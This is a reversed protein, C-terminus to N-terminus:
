GKLSELPLLDALAPTACAREYMRRVEAVADEPTYPVPLSALWARLDDRMRGGTPYRQEPNHRLAQKLISVVAEPVGRAAREVAEPGLALLRTGLVDLPLWSPQEATFPTGTSSPPTVEDPDDLPHRGLLLELLVMGLAFLDLRSDYQGRCVYEPATYAMDGRLHHTTTLRRGELTSFMGDFGALKVEGRLSLRINELNIGRHIIHLPQGRDDTLQHAHDLADAVAAGIFCVFAPPLPCQLLAGLSAVTELDYGSVEESVIFLCDPTDHVQWVQEIHSHRLRQALRGGDRVRQRAASDGPGELCRVRALWPPSSAQALLLTERPPEEGPAPRRLVKRVSLSM